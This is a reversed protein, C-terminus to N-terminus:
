SLASLIGIEHLDLHIRSHPDGHLTQAKTM